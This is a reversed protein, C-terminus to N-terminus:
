SSIPTGKTEWKPRAMVLLLGVTSITSSSNRTLIIAASLRDSLPKVTSSACSASSASSQEIPVLNRDQKGVDVHRPRDVPQLKGFDDGGASRLHLHDDRRTAFPDVLGAKGVIADVQGFGVLRGLEGLGDSGLSPISPTCDRPRRPM